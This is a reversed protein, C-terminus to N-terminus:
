LSKPLLGLRLEEIEEKEINRMLQEQNVLYQMRSANDSKVVVADQFLDRLLELVAQKEM